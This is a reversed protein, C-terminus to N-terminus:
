YKQFKVSYKKGNLRVVCTYTGAAFQAGMNLPKLIQGAFGSQGSALTLVQQGNTAFVAISLDTYNDPTIIELTAQQQFPSPFVRIYVGNLNGTKFYATDSYFFLTSSACLSTVRFMYDTNPRLGNLTYQEGQVFVKNWSTATTTKYELTDNTVGPPNKWQVLVRSPSYATARLNTVDGCGVVTIKATDKAKCGNAATGEVIYEISAPPSVLLQNNNSSIIYLSPTWSYTAGGTGTLTLARSKILTAFKPIVNVVPSPIVTVVVPASTKNCGNLSTTVTYNGILGANYTNNVANSIPAGNISWQYGYGTGTVASLTVSGGSCFSTSGGATISALPLPKVTVAVPSSLGECGNLITKVTYNGSAAANFSATIAGPQISGNLYWQYSYAPDTNANLVVNGGECFSTIGAPTIVAPPVPKVTVVYPVSIKSCGAATVLVSYTGATTAIYAANTAGSIAGGNLNWQYTYGTGAPANLTLNSGACFSNGNANISADPAPNVIVTLPSSTKTCGGDNVLVTYDGAVAASYAPSTAGAISGGNLYWQYRYGAGATANLTVNSGACFTTAGAPTIVATPLPRVTVTVPSSTRSCGNETVTVSYNGATAATYAANTAGNVPMGDLSWQYTYGAGAPANLTVSGGLCFGLSGAASITANPSPKVTVAVPASTSECGTAFVKVTYNGSATAAYSATTAAGIPVGGNYWQYNYGSAPSANLVVNGGACFSVPGAAAASATPPATINVLIPNSTVNCTSVSVRVTYSGSATANYTQAIAGSIPSGNNFWQYGYGTGGGNARLTVSAACTNQTGSPSTTGNVATGNNIIKVGMIVTCNATNGTVKVYYNGPALGNATATTQGDSWLYTFPGTGAGPIATAQGNNLGCTADNKSIALTMNNCTCNCNSNTVYTRIKAGPQPGFNNALNIGVGGVLHCYSMVTGGGVPTPAGSCSGEYPIGATPGCNDIATGNGNWSCNHTHPSSLNHGLEHTIVMTSWSYTPLANFPALNGNVGTRFAFSNCLGNFYARGGGIGRFSFLHAIDGNFGGSMANSFLNLATGTNTASAYPDTATWVKVERIQVTVSENNYITQTINFVGTVYNMVNVISSGNSLYSQYDTEIYMSVPCGVNETKNNPEPPYQPIDKFQSEDTGCEFTNQVLLDKEHYAIVQPTPNGAADKINGININGTEDALVGIVQNDFVSIAALSNPKGAIKGRYYLGPEYNLSQKNQGNQQSSKFFPSLPASETLEVTIMRDSLPVQISLKDPRSNVLEQVVTKDTSFQRGQKVYQKTNTGIDTAPTFLAVQRYQAFLNTSIFLLIILSLLRLLHKM